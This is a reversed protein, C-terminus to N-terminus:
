HKWYNQMEMYLFSASWAILVLGTLAELGTLFRLDDTPIIDGLGLSTYTVFSYYAYDILNHEISGALKGFKGWEIMLYYAIAFIWIEIVHAILSSCIGILVKLRPMISLKPLISTTRALMEYHVLVCLSIVFTNILFSYLM